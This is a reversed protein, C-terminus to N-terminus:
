FHVQKAKVVIHGFRSGTNRLFISTLFNGQKISGWFETGIECFGTMLSQGLDIQIM